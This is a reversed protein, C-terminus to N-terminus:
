RALGVHVFALAADGRSTVLTGDTAGRARGRSPSGRGIVEFREVLDTYLDNKPEWGLLKTANAPVCFFHYETRFPFAKKVDIALARPDARPGRLSACDYLSACDCLLACDCLQAGATPSHASTDSVLQARTRGLAARWGGLRPRRVM